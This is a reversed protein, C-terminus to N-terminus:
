WEHLRANGHMKKKISDVAARAFADSIPSPKASRVAESSPSSKAGSSHVTEIIYLKADDAVKYIHFVDSLVCCAYEGFIACFSFHVVETGKYVLYGDHVSNFSTLVMKCGGRIQTVFGSCHNTFTPDSAQNYYMEAFDAMGKPLLHIGMKALKATIRARSDAKSSM